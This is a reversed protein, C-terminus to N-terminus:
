VSYDNYGAIGSRMVRAPNGAVLCRSPVVETVVAGAAVVANDGVEVGPLIVAGAGVVAGRGLCVNGAIVAGPGISAYDAIDAHHGISASRNIFVFRGIKGAAGITAASNVYCGPELTTSSAVIATPDILTRPSTLGHLGADEAAKLRHFPTFLPVTFECATLEAPMDAALIVTQGSPEYTQGEVNKVWAAIPLHLRACTEAVDAVIMSGIGYLIISM